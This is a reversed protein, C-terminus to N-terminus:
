LFIQSIIFLFYSYIHRKLNQDLMKKKLEIDLAEEAERNTRKRDENEDTLDEKPVRAPSL